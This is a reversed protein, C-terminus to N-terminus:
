AQMRGNVSGLPFMLLDPVSQTNAGGVTVKFCRKKLFFHTCAADSDHLNHGCSQPVALLHRCQQQEEDYRLAAAEFHTM